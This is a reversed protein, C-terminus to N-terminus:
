AHSLEAVNGPLGRADDTRTLSNQLRRISQEALRSVIHVLVRAIAFVSLNNTKTLPSRPPSPPPTHKEEGLTEQVAHNIADYDHIVLPLITTTPECM